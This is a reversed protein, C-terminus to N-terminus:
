KGTRFHITLVTKNDPAVEMRVIRANDPVEEYRCPKGNLLIETRDTVVFQSNTARAAAQAATRTPRTVVRGKQVEDGFARPTLTASAASVVFMWAALALTLRIM